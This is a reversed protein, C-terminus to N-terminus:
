IFNWFEKIDERRKVLKLGKEDTISGTGQNDLFRVEIHGDILFWDWTTIVMGIRKGEKVVDGKKFKSNKVGGNNPKSM